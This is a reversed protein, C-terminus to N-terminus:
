SDSHRALIENSIFSRWGESSHHSCVYSILNRRPAYPIPCIWPEKCWPAWPTPFKKKFVRHPSEGHPPNGMLM